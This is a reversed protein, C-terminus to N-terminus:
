QQGLGKEVKEVEEQREQTLDTRYFEQNHPLRLYCQDIPELSIRAKHLRWEYVHGGAKRDATIFHFHYGSANVGKLYDPLRFGVIVGKINHFEFITQKQTAEILPPYPKKQRPISRARLYPFTGEIKIAYLLNKTPLLTDLYRESEGYDMPREVWLTKNPRFFTVMAFPTKTTGAVLYAQGDSKIQYFRGELGIMEGDLGNVTGLGFDGHKALDAFTLDGEYVGNMLAPLTSTQFLVGGATSHVPSGILALALVAVVVLRRVIKM